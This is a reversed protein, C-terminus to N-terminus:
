LKQRIQKMAFAGSSDAAVITFNATGGTTPTGSIVGTTSNLLLGAPLSGGAQISFLIQGFGGSTTIQATYPVGVSGAPLSTTTIKLPAVANVIKPASAVSSTTVTVSNVGPSAYQSPFVTATLQSSNVFTTPLPNGDWNIISSSLFGSGNVTIIVGTATTLINLPTVNSLIPTPAIITITLPQSTQQQQKVAVSATGAKSLAAAPITTKLSNSSLVIAPLNQVSNLTVLAAPSFGSGSLTLLTAPSGMILTNPFVSLLVPLTHNLATPPVPTPATIGGCSELLLVALLISTYILKM